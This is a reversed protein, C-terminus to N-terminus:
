IKFFWNIKGRESMSGKNRVKCIAPAKLKDLKRCVINVVIGALAFYINTTLAVGCDVRLTFCFNEFSKCFWLM